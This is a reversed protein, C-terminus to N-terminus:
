INPKYKSQLVRLSLTRKFTLQTKKTMNQQREFKSEQAYIHNHYIIKYKLVGCELVVNQQGGKTKKTFKRLVIYMGILRNVRM